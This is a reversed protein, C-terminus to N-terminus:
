EERSAKMFEAVGRSATRVGSTGPRSARMLQQKRIGPLDLADMVEECSYDLDFWWRSRRM